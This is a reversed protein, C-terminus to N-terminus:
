GTGSEEIAVIQVAYKAKRKSALQVKVKRMDLQKEFPYLGVKYHTSSQGNASNESREWFDIVRKAGNEYVKFDDKRLDKVQKGAKDSIAVEVVVFHVPCSIVVDNRKEQASTSQGKAVVLGPFWILTFALCSLFIHKQSGSLMTITNEVRSTGRDM